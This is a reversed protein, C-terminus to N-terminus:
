VYLALCHANIMSCLVLSVFATPEVVFLPGRLYLYRRQATSSPGQSTVVAPSLGRPPPPPNPPPSLLLSVTWDPCCCYSVPGVPNCCCPIPRLLSLLLLGTEQPSLVLKQTRCCCPVPGKPHCCCSFPQLHHTSICVLLGSNYFLPILAIAAVKSTPQIQTM